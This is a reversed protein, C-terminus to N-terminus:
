RRLAATLGVAGLLFALAVTPDAGLSLGAGAFAVVAAAVVVGTTGALHILELDRSPASGLSGRLDVASHAFTWALVLAVAAALALVPGLGAVAAVLLECFLCAVGTDALRRSQRAYGLALALIGAAGALVTVTDVAALVFAVVGCAVAVAGTVLGAQADSV